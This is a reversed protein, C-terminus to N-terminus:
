VIRVSSNRLTGENEGRWGKIMKKRKLFAAQPSLAKPSQSLPHFSLHTTPRWVSNQTSADGIVLCASIPKKRLRTLTTITIQFQQAIILLLLLQCNFNGIVVLMFSSSTSSCQSNRDDM